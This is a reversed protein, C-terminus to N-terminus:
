GYAVLGGGCGVGDMCLGFAGVIVGTYPIEGVLVNTDHGPAACGDNRPPLIPELLIVDGARFVRRFEALDESPREEDSSQQSDCPNRARCFVDLSVVIKGECGEGVLELHLAPTADEVGAGGQLVVSVLRELHSPDPHDAVGSRVEAGIM